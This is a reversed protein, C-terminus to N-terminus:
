TKWIKEHASKVTDYFENYAAKSLDMRLNKLHIHIKGDANKEITWESYKPNISEDGMLYKVIHGM